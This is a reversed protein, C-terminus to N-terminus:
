VYERLGKVAYVTESAIYTLHDAIRELHRLILAEAATCRDITDSKLRTLGAIYAEDIGADLQMVKRAAKEDLELIAKRALSMMELIQDWTECALGMECGNCELIRVTRAIEFTYRTVRYFDYSANVLAQLLRLDAAVPQFRAIVETALDHVETKLRFADRSFGRLKELDGESCQRICNRAYRLSEDAVSALSGILGKLEELALDILRKPM